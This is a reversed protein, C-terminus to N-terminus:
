EEYTDDEDTLSPVESAEFLKPHPRHRPRRHRPLTDKTRVVLSGCRECILMPATFPRVFPVLPGWCFPASCQTPPNIWPDLYPDVM